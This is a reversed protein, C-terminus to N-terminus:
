AGNPYHDPCDVLAHTVGYRDWPKGCHARGGLFEFAMMHMHADILGRVEGWPTETKAPEGTANIEVEPFAACGQAAVFSFRGAASPAVLTLDGGPSTALAQGTSPLTITFDDKAGTVRWDAAPSADAARETRGDSTGALFDRKPGYLMYQGLETPQLRFADGGAVVRGLANSRLQYCGGALAYRADDDQALADPAAALSVVVLVGGLM